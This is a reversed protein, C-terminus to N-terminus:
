SARSVNCPIRVGEVAAVGSACARKWIAKVIDSRSVSLEAARERQVQLLTERHVARSAQQMSESAHTRQHTCM